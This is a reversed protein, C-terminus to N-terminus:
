QVHKYLSLTYLSQHAMGSGTIDGVAIAGSELSVVVWIVSYFEMVQEPLYVVDGDYNQALFCRYQYYQVTGKQDVM